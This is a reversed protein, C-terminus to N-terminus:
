KLENYARMWDSIFQSLEKGRHGVVYKGVRMGEIEAEESDTQDIFIQGAEPTALLKFAEYGNDSYYKGGKDFDPLLGSGRGKGATDKVMDAWKDSNFEMSGRGAEDAFSNKVADLAKEFKKDNLKPLEAKIAAKFKPPIQELSNRDGDWNWIVAEKLLHGEALYKKLDFNDM